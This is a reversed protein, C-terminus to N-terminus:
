PSLPAIAISGPASCPWYKPTHTARGGDWCRRLAVKLAQENPSKGRGELWATLKRIPIEHVTSPSDRAVTLRTAPGPAVDMLGSRRFEAVSLAAAEHLSAATVRATHPSRLCYRHPVELVEAIVANGAYDGYLVHNTIECALVTLWGPHLV